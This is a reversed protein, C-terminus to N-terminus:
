LNSYLRYFEIFEKAANPSKTRSILRFILYKAQNKSIDYEAQGIKGSAFSHKLNVLEQVQGHVEKRAQKFKKVVPDLGAADM